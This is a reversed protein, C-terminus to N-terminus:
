APVAERYLGHEAILEGVGRPVLDRIPRGAAVRRRIETSSVEMQPMEIRAVRDAGLRELAAEVEGFGTGPRGAIGLGALELVRRPQRWSELGAAADAGLLLHLDDGPRRESLLELTRFSYSPGPREVEIASAELLREGAAARRAMELRLEPGPEPEVRRHPAEGVAILLVRELGLQWAAERALM